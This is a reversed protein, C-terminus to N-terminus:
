PIISNYNYLFSNSYNPSLVSICDHDKSGVSQAMTFIHFVVIRLSKEVYYTIAHLAFAALSYKV